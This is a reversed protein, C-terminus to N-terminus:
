MKEIEEDKEKLTQEMIKYKPDELELSQELISNNNSLNSHRAPIQELFPNDSKQM